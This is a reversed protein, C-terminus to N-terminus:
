LTYREVISKLVEVVYFRGNMDREPRVDYPKLLAAVMRATIPEGGKWVAWPGDEDSVLEAILDKSTIRVGQWRELIESISRLLM